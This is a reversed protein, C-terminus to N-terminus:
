SGAPLRRAANQRSSCTTGHAIRPAHHSAPGGTAEARVALESDVGRGALGRRAERLRRITAGVVPLLENAQEPTWHREHLM